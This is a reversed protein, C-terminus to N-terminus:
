AVRELILANAMGGAECLSQLGYDIGNAVM